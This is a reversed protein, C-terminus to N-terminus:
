FVGKAVDLVLQASSRYVKNMSQPSNWAGKKESSPEYNETGSDSECDSSFGLYKELYKNNILTKQSLM